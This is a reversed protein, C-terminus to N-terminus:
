FNSQSNNSLTLTLSRWKKFQNFYLCFIKVVTVYRYFIHSFKQFYIILLTMLSLATAKTKLIQIWTIPIAISRLITELIRSVIHNSIFVNKYTICSQIMIIYCNLFLQINIFIFIYTCKADSIYLWCHVAFSQLQLSIKSNNINRLYM